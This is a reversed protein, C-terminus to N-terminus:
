CLYKNELYVKLRSRVIETYIKYGTDMLTLGSYNRADDEKGKKFITQSDRDEM